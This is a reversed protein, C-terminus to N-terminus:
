IFEMYFHRWAKLIAKNKNEASTDNMHLAMEKEIMADVASLEAKKLGVYWTVLDQGLADVLCQDEELANLAEPLSTPLLEAGNNENDGSRPPQLPLKREIGDLGAACMGAIILYVCGSASPMRLEFYSEKVRIAAARDGWGYDAHTPAWAGHREYCPPTPSCFAELAKAHHLIGAIFHKATESLDSSGSATHIPCLREFCMSSNM